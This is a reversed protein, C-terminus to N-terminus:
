FRELYQAIGKNNGLIEATGLEVIDSLEIYCPIM